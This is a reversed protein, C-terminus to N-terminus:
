VASWQLPMLFPHPIAIRQNILNSDPVVTVHLPQPSRCIHGWLPCLALISTIHPQRRSSPLLLCYQSSTSQFPRFCRSPSHRRHAAPKQIPATLSRSGISCCLASASKRVCAHIFRAVDPPAPSRSGLLLLAPLAHWPDPVPIKLRGTGPGPRYGYGNPAPVPVPLTRTNQQRTRTGAPIGAM